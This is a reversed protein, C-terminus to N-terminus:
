YIQTKSALAVIEERINSRLLRIIRTSNQNSTM